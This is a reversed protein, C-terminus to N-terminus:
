QAGTNPPMQKQLDAKVHESKSWSKIARQFMFYKLTNGWDLKEIVELCRAPESELLLSEFEVPIPSPLLDLIASAQGVFGARVMACLQQPHGYDRRGRAVTACFQDGL